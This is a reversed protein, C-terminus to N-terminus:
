SLQMWKTFHTQMQGSSSNEFAFCAVGFAIHVLFLFWFSYYSIGWDKRKFRIKRIKSGLEVGKEM